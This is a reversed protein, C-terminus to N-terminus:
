AIATRSVQVVAERKLQPDIVQQKLIWVGVGAAIMLLVLVTKGALGFLDFLGLIIQVM